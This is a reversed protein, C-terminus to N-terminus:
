GDRCDLRGDCINELPICKALSDCKFQLLSHCKEQPRCNEEDLGGPCDEVGDCFLAKSVCKYSHIKENTIM